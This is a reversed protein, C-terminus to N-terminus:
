KKSWSEDSPTIALLERASRTASDQNELNRARWIEQRAEAGRNRRLIAIISTALINGRGRLEDLRERVVQELAHEGRPRMEVWVTRQDNPNRRRRVCGRKELRDILEVASHHKLSLRDALHGISAKEDQPVARIALLMQYQQPELGAAQAAENSGRLFRRISYRLEALAAYDSDSIDERM